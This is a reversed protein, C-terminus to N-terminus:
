SDEFFYRLIRFQFVLRRISPVELNCQNWWLHRQRLNVVQAFASWKRFIFHLCFLCLTTSKCAATSSFDSEFSSKYTLGTSVMEYELFLVESSLPLLFSNGVFGFRLNKWMLHVSIPSTTQWSYGSTSDVMLQNQPITVLLEHNGNTAENLYVQVLLKAECRCPSAEAVEGITIQYLCVGWPRCM